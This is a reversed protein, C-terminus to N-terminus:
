EIEKRYPISAQAGMRTIAIASAATAMQVADALGKGEALAVCLAGNFTDGAATTDVVEVKKSPVRETLSKNKILAGLAGLTIVVNEVGKSLLIDAAREADEWGAVAIGTLLQSETRNPTILYLKKLLDASLTAAPAPNLVVKTGSALAINAAYEVVEMPVELQMLLYDAEEIKTKAADIDNKCLRNNAGSAVVISNEGKKDVCILAVGSPTQADRAIYSTDMGDKKYGEVSQNGFMDNGVRAIFTVDGGMRAVAVAQNAGKGGATMMFAGGLITEGPEPMREAKVVLDTNSSGVVAIKRRDTM